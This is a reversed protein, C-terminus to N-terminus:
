ESNPIQEGSKVAVRVKSGNDLIQRRVRTREGTQPDIPMLK